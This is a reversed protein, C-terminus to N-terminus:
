NKSLEILLFILVTPVSLCALGVGWQIQGLLLLFIGLVIPLLVLMFYGPIVATISFRRSLQEFPVKSKAAAWGVLVLVGLAYLTIGWGLLNVLESALSVMPLSLGKVRAIGAVSDILLLILLLMIVAGAIISKRHM